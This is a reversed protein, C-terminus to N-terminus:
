VQTHAAQRDIQRRFDVTAETSILSALSPIEPSLMPRVAQKTVYGWIWGQTEEFEKETQPNCFSAGKSGCIWSPLPGVWLLM